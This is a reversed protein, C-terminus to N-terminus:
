ERFVDPNEILYQEWEADSKREFGLADRWCDACHPLSGEPVFGDIDRCKKTEGCNDCETIRVEDTM